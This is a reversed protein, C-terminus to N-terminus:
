VKASQYMKYERILAVLAFFLTITLLSYSISILTIGWSTFNLILSTIPVITLSTVVSLASKELTGFERSTLTAKVVSYGPLYLVFLSGLLYRIYTMSSGTERIMLSALVSLAALSHVTWFWRAKGSLLYRGVSFQPKALTDWM